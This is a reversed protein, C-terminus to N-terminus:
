SADRERADRADTLAWAHRTQIEENVMRWAYATAGEATAGRRRMFNRALRERDLALELLRMALPHDYVTRTGLYQGRYWIEEEFGYVARELLIEELEQFRMNLNRDWRVQFVPHQRRRYITPTSVNLARSIQRVNGIMHLGKLVMAALDDSWVRDFCRGNRDRARERAMEDRWRKLERSWNRSRRTLESYLTRREVRSRQMTGVDSGAIRHMRITMAM